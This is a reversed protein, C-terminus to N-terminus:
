GVWPWTDYCGPTRVSWWATDTDFSPRTSFAGSGSGPNLLDWWADTIDTASAPNDYRRTVAGDDVSVTVSTEPSGNRRVKAAAAEGESPRPARPTSASPTEVDDVASARLRLVGRGLFLVLNEQFASHWNTGDFYNAETSRKVTLEM